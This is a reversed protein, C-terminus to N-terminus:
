YAYERKLPPHIYQAFSICYFCNNPTFQSMSAFSMPKNAKKQQDQGDEAM